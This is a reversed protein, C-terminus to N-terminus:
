VSLLPYVWDVYLRQVQLRFDDVTGNNLMAPVDAHSAIDAIFCETHAGEQCLFEEYTLREEGAKEKRLLARPYRVKEDATLHVLLNPSFSRLMALDSPLRLANVVVIDNNIKAAHIHHCIVNSFTGEGYADNMAVPLKQFNDRMPPLCWLNLTKRLIVSTSVIAIQRDCVFEGFLKVFTDKGCLSPGVLGIIM